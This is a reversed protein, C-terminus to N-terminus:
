SALAHQIDRTTYGFAPHVEARPPELDNTWATGTWWRLMATGGPDPYWGFPALDQENM